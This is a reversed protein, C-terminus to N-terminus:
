TLTRSKGGRQKPIDIAGNSYISKATVINQENTAIAVIRTLKRSSHYM